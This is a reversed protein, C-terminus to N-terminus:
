FMTGSPLNSLNLIKRKGRANRRQLGVCDVGCEGWEEQNNLFCNANFSTSNILNASQM